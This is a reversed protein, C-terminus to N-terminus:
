GGGESTYLGVYVTEQSTSDTDIDCHYIGSTSDNNRQQLNVQQIGQTEYIDGSLHLRSGNPFYWEGSHTGNTCCTNLHTHCGIGNIGNGVQNLDVYSHNPLTVGMFTLFPVSQSHIEVLSWLLCLEILTTAGM